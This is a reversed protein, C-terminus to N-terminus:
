HHDRQMFNRVESKFFKGNGNELENERLSVNNVKSYVCIWDWDDIITPKIIIIYIYIM